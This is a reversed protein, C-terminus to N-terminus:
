SRLPRSIDQAAKSALERWNEGNINWGFEEYLIENGYPPLTFDYSPALRFKEYHVPFEQLLYHQTPFCGFMKEKMEREKESLFIDEGGDDPIVFGFGDRHGQVTGLRDAERPVLDKAKRM